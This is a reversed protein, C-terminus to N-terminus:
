YGVPPPNWQIPQARVRVQRSSNTTPTENIQLYNYIYRKPIPKNHVLNNRDTWNAWCTVVIKQLDELSLVSNLEFWRDAFNHNFDVMLLDHAFTLEWIDKAKECRILIHYTTEVERNCRPCMIYTQIGRKYLNEVFLISEEWQVASLIDGDKFYISKLFRAVLSNPNILIRWVQKAVLAQNFGEVDRFNLGGLSKPYCMKEWSCRHMKRKTDSSGM